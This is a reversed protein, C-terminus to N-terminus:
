PEASRRSWVQFIIGWDGWAEQASGLLNGEGAIAIVGRFQIAGLGM